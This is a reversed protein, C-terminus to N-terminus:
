VATKHLLRLGCCVHRAEQRPHIRLCPPVCAVLSDCWHLSSLTLHVLCYGIIGLDGQSKALIQAICSWCRLIYLGKHTLRAEHIEPMPPDNWSVEIACHPALEIGEVQPAPAYSGYYAKFRLCGSALETLILWWLCLYQISRFSSAHITSLLYIWCPVSFAKDCLDNLFNAYTRNRHNLSWSNMRQPSGTTVVELLGLYHPSNHLM